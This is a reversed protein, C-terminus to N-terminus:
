TCLHLIDLEKLLETQYLLLESPLDTHEKIDTTMEELQGSMDMKEIPIGITLNCNEDVYNSLGELNDANAKFSYIIGLNDDIIVAYGEDITLPIFLIQGKNLQDAYDDFIM